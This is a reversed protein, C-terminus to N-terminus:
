AQEDMSEIELSRLYRFLLRSSKPPRGMEKESIAKNATERIGPIDAQPFAQRIEDLVSEDGELLADRWRELRQFSQVEEQHGTDTAAFHALLPAPDIDRMLRGIFQLQRRYSDNKADRLKRAMIAAQVIESDLGLSELVAPPLDVLREGLDQLANMERKKQSRSKLEQLYNGHRKKTM